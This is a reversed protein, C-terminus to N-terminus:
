GEANHGQSIDKKCCRAECAEDLYLGSIRECGAMGGFANKAWFHLSLLRRLNNIRTAYRHPKQYGEWWTM